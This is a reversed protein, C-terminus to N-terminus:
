IRPGETGIMWRGPRRPEQPGGQGQTPRYTVEPLDGPLVEPMIATVGLPLPLSQQIAVQGKSDWDAGNGVVRLDGTWLQTVTQGGPSTYTPPPSQGGTANLPDGM